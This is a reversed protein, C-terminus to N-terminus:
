ILDREKFVEAGGIIFASIILLAAISASLPSTARTYNIMIPCMLGVTVVTLSSSVNFRFRSAYASAAAAIIFSPISSLFDLLFVDGALKSDFRFMISGCSFLVMLWFATLCFRFQAFRNLIAAVISPLLFVGVAIMFTPAYLRSIDGNSAALKGGIAAGNVIAVSNASVTIVFLLLALMVGITKAVFFGRRSVAHSLALAATGSEIERHFTKIAGAAAFILAFVVLSSVGADKAMRTAEGFQHYHFAPALTSVLLASLLLLLSLPEAIISLATAKIIARLPKM